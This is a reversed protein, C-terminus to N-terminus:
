VSYGWGEDESIAFSVTELVAGCNSRLSAPPL